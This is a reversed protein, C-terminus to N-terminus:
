KHAIHLVIYFFFISNLRSHVYTYGRYIIISVYIKFHSADIKNRTDVIIPHSTVPATLKRFLQSQNSTIM